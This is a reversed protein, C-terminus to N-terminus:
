CCRLTFASSQKWRVQIYAPLNPDVGSFLLAADSADRNEDYRSDGAGETQSQQEDMEYNLNAWHEQGRQPFSDRSNTERVAEVAMEKNVNRDLDSKLQDTSNTFILADERARSIAVYGLVSILYSIPNM